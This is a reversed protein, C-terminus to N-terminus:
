PATCRFSVCREGDTSPDGDDCPTGDPTGEPHADTPSECGTRWQHLRVELYDVSIVARDPSDGQPALPALDLLLKGGAADWDDLRADECRPEGCRWDPTFTARWDSPADPTAAADEHLRVWGGRGPLGLSVSWGPVPPGPGGAPDFAHGLGGARARLDIALLARESRDAPDHRAPTLDWEAVLHPVTHAPAYSWTQRCHSSPAAADCAGPYWADGGVLVVEARAPDYSLAHAM